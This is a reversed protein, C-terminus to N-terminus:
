YSRTTNTRPSLRSTRAQSENIRRLMLPHKPMVTDDSGDTHDFDSVERTPVRRGREAHALRRDSGEIDYLRSQINDLADGISSCIPASKEMTKEKSRFGRLEDGLAKDRNKVTEASDPKHSDTM